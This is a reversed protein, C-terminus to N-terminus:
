KKKKDKRAKELISRLEEPYHNRMTYVCSAFGIYWALVLAALGVLVKLLVM